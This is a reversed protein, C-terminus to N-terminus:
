LKKYWVVSTIGLWHFGFVFAEAKGDPKGNGGIKSAEFGLALFARYVSDELGTPNALSDYFLQAVAPIRLM